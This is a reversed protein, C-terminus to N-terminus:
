RTTDVDAHADIYDIVLRLRGATFTGATTIGVYADLPGIGVSGATNSVFAGDGITKKGVANINAVAGNAATILGTANIAAGNLQYLGVTFSTGGVAAERVVARVSLINADGPLRDDGTNFGDRVADNNLDSTFSTTGAPLLSLDVDMFAQKIEGATRPTSLRNRQNYPDAWFSPFPITLGDANQWPVGAM